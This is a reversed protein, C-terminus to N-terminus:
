PHDFNYETVRDLEEPTLSRYFSDQDILVVRHDRLQQIIQECVTTKGSATGGSVGIIFPERGASGPRNQFTTIDSSLRFGSLHADKSSQMAHDIDDLSGNALRRSGIAPSAAM